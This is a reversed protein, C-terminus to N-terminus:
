AGWAGPAGGWPARARTCAAPHRLCGNGGAGKAPRCGDTPRGGEEKPRRPPRGAPQQRQRRRPTPSCARRKAGRRQRKSGSTIHGRARARQKHLGGRRRLRPGARACPQEHWWHGICRARRPGDGRGGGGRNIGHHPAVSCGKPLPAAAKGSLLRRAEALSRWSPHLDSVMRTALLAGRCTKQGLHWTHHSMGRLGAEDGGMRGNNHPPHAHRARKRQKHPRGWANPAM